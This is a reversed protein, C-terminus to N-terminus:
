IHTNVNKQSKKNTKFVYIPDNQMHKEMKNQSETKRCLSVHYPRKMNSTFM